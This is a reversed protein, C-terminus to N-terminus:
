PIASKYPNSTPLNTEVRTKSTEKLKILGSVGTVNWKSLTFVQTFTLMQINRTDM